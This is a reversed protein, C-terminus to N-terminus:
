LFSIHLYYMKVVHCTNNEHNCDCGIDSEADFPSHPTVGSMELQCSVNDFKWYMAGMTQFIEQLAIAAYCFCFLLNGCRYAELKM